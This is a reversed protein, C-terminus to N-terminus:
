QKGRDICVLSTKAIERKLTDFVDNLFPLLRSARELEGKICATEIELAIEKLALSSMNGAAGNVTHAIRQSELADEQELATELAALQQPMNELFGEIARRALLKDDALRDLLDDKDFFGRERESIPPSDSKVGRKIENPTQPNTRSFWQDLMNGLLRANIPKALYDDMGAAFCKERDGKMAHATMAIIPIDHRIVKSNPDRICRTAEFGDLNPMQVDMLVLDYPTQELAELAERGDTVVDAYYGFNEIMEQAVLQNIPNDEALLIKLRRRRAESISHRTILGSVSVPIPRQKRGIAIAICDHLLSQKIPKQLYGTFGIEEFRDADGKMGMSTMMVLVTDKLVPDSKIVRGLEEGSMDPMNMDLIALEFPDGVETGNRLAALAGVADSVKQCRCEWSELLTILLERNTASDDVALVKIDKLSLLQEGADGISPPLKKLGVTFWFLSGKDLVSEVGIEGGMLEALLKSISLGLGTGGFRRTASGDAQIFPQFLSELKESAIGIGSDSVEIRLKITDENDEAISVRIAVEGNKTFKIANDTLNIVVQRLRGPDGCVLSPVEPTILCTFELGKQAAKLALVDIADELTLRLDFDILESELKGAEVKSFDLIDNIIQLLSEASSRVTEAYLRQKPLLHTDLLLDTMGIVGNMPTRIEHSVNALFQSKSANAMEAESAMKNARATEEEFRYNTEEHAKKQLLLEEQARKREAIEKKLANNVSELQGRSDEMDKMMNLAAQRQDNESFDSFAFMTLEEISNPNPTALLLFGNSISFWQGILPISSNENTITLNCCACISTKLFEPTIEETSDNFKILESIGIGVAQENRKLIAESAWTVILNEDIALTFPNQVALLNLEIEVRGAGRNM